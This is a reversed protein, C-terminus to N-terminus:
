MFRISNLKREREDLLKGKFKNQRQTGMWTALDRSVISGDAWVGDRKDEERAWRLWRRQKMLFLKVM